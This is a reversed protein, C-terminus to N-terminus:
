ADPWQGAMVLLESLADDHCDGPAFEDHRAHTFDPKLPRAHDGGFEADVSWSSTCVRSIQDGSRHLPL